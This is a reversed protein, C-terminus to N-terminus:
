WVGLAFNHRVQLAEFLVSSNYDNVGCFSLNLSTLATTTALAKACAQVGFAGVFSSSLDLSTLYPLHQILTRPAAPPVHSGILGLSVCAAVSSSGAHAVLKSVFQAVASGDDKGAATKRKRAAGSRGAKAKSRPRVRKGPHRATDGAGAGATAAARAGSSGRLSIDLHTLSTSRHLVDALTVGVSSGSSLADNQQLRLWAVHHHRSLGQVIARLSRDGLCNHSLDLGRIHEADLVTAARPRPRPPVVLVHAGHPANNERAVSCLGCM